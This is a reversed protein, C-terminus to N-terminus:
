KNEMIAAFLKTNTCKDLWSQLNRYPSATFWIKDTNAFQRIFPFIAVDAFRIQENMLYPHKALRDDLLQLFFEAQLRYEVQSLEPYRDFYKYRDLLPKFEIDCTDVLRIMEEQSLQDNQLLWNEPDAQHLAWLIIDRSQDIVEDNATVVVPM